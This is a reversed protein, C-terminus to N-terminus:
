ADEASTKRGDNTHCLVRLESDRVQDRLPKYDEGEQEEHGVNGQGGKVGVNHEDEKPPVVVLKRKTNKQRKTRKTKKEAERARKNNSKGKHQKFQLVKNPDVEYVFRKRMVDQTLRLCEAPDAPEKPNTALDHVIPTVKDFLRDRNMKLGSKTKDSLDHFDGRFLEEDLVSVAFGVRKRLDQM